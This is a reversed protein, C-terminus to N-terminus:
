RKDKQLLPNQINNRDFDSSIDSISTENRINKDNVLSRFKKKLDNNHPQKCQDIINNFIDENINNDIYNYITRKIEHMIRKRELLTLIFSSFYLLSKITLFYILIEKIDVVKQLEPPQIKRMDTGNNYILDILFFTWIM